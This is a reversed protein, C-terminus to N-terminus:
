SSGVLRQKVAWYHLPHPKMVRISPTKKSVPEPRFESFVWDDDYILSIGMTTNPNHIGSSVVQIDCASNM